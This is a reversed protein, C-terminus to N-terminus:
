VRRSNALRNAAADAASVARRYAGGASSPSLTETLRSDANNRERQAAYNGLGWAAVVLPIALLLLAAILRFGGPRADPERPTPEVRNRARLALASTLPAHLKMRPAGRRGCRLPSENPRVTARRM